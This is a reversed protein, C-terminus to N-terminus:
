ACKNPTPVLFFAKIVDLLEPALPALADGALVKSLVRTVRDLVGNTVRCWQPTGDILPLDGISSNLVECM